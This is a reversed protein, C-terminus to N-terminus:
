SYIFIKLENEIREIEKSNSYKLGGKIRKKKILFNICEPNKCVYISRGLENSDPNIKLTDDQLKTIRILEERNKTERCSQCMRKIEKSM